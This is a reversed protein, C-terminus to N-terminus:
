DPNMLRVAWTSDLEQKLSYEHTLREVITLTPQESIARVILVGDRGGETSNRWGRCFVLEGDERLVQLDDLACFLTIKRVASLDM